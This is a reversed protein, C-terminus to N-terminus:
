PESRKHESTNPVISARRRSPFTAERPVDIDYLAVKTVTCALGWTKCAEPLSRKELSHGFIEALRTPFDAGGATLITKLRAADPASFRYILDFSEGEKVSVAHGIALEGTLKEVIWFEGGILTDM